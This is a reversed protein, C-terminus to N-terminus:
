FLERKAMLGFIGGTHIFVPVADRRVGGKRITDITGTMAKATYTPDLGIGEKRAVLRVTDIAAPYPIAYGEGIFGDLLEIPTQAESVDLGFLAVTKRELERLDQQFFAVSDSVPV